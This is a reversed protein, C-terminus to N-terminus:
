EDVRSYVTNLGNLYPFKRLTREALIHDVKALIDKDKFRCENVTLAYKSIIFLKSRYFKSITEFSDDVVEIYYTNPNRTRGITQVAIVDSKFPEALVVTMKLDKIDM